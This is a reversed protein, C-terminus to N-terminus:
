LNYYVWVNAASNYYCNDGHQWTLLNDIMVGDPVQDNRGTQPNLVNHYGDYCPSKGGNYIGINYPSDKQVRFIWRQRRDFLNNYKTLLATFNISPTVSASNHNYYININMHGLGSGGFSSSGQLNIFNSCKLNLDLKFNPIPYNNINYITHDYLEAYGFNFSGNFILNNGEILNINWPEKLNKFLEIGRLYGFTGQFMINDAKITDVQLCREITDQVDEAYYTYIGIWSGFYINNTAIINKYTAINRLTNPFFNGKSGDLRGTLYDININKAIIDGNMILGDTYGGSSCVPGFSGYGMINGNYAIINNINKYSLVTNKNPTTLFPHVKCMGWGTVSSANYFTINGNLSIIDGFTGGYKLNPTYICINNFYSTSNNLHPQIGYDEIRINKEAIIDKFQCHETELFELVNYSNNNNCNLYGGGDFLYYDMYINGNVYINGFSGFNKLPPLSNQNHRSHSYYPPGFDGEKTIIDGWCPFISLNDCHFSSLQTSSSNKTFIINGFSPCEELFAYTSDNISSPKGDGFYLILSYSNLIISDSISPVKKTQCYFFMDYLNWILPSDIKDFHFNCGNISNIGCGYFAMTGVKINSLTNGGNLYIDTMNNCYYYPEYAFIIRSGIEAKTLVNNYAYTYNMVEVSEGCRAISTFNPQLPTSYSYFIDWFNRVYKGCWYEGHYYNMINNSENIAITDRTIVNDYKQTQSNWNTQSVIINNRFSLPFNQGSFATIKLKDLGTLDNTYIPSWNYIQEVSTLGLDYINNLNVIPHDLTKCFIGNVKQYNLHEPAYVVSSALYLPADGESYLYHTGSVNKDWVNVGVSTSVKFTDDGVLSSGVAYSTVEYQAYGDAFIYIQGIPGQPLPAPRVTRINNIATPMVSPKYYVDENLKYRLASGIGSLTGNLISYDAM